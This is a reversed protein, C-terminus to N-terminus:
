LQGGRGDQHHWVGSRHRRGHVVGLLEHGGGAISGDVGSTFNGDGHMVGGSWHGTYKDGSEAWRMTGIGEMEGRIFTGEYQDGNCATFEGKGHMLDQYWEGTYSDGESSVM